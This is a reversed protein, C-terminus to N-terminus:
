RYVRVIDSPCKVLYYDEKESFGGELIEIM